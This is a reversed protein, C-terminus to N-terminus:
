CEECFNVVVYPNLNKASNKLFRRIAISTNVPIYIKVTLVALNLTCFKYNASIIGWTNIAISNISLSSIRCLSLHGINDQEPM